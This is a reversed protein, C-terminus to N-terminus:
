NDLYNAQVNCKLSSSNSTTWQKITRFEQRDQKGNPVKSIESRFGSRGKNQKNQKTKGNGLLLM